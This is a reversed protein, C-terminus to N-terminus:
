IQFKNEKLQEGRGGTLVQGKIQSGSSCGKTKDGIKLAKLKRVVHAASM